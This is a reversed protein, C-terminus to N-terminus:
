RAPQTLRHHRPEPCLSGVRSGGGGRGARRDGPSPASRGPALGGPRRDWFLHERERRYDPAGELQEPTLLGSLEALAEATTAKRDTNLRDLEGALRRAEEPDTTLLLDTALSAHQLRGAANLRPGFDWGLTDADSRSLDLRAVEALAVLGPRRSERLADLGLRVLDRNEGRLPVLDCVTGLAVLALHPSSDYARGLRAYLEATVKYAVGVAAPESGYDSGPLKPNVLALAPPLAPPLSHHDVVVVDMGLENALGVEGAASSGCDATVLLTAGGRALGEVAARNPGYGETFRDPIYPM